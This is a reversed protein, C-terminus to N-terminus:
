ARSSVGRGGACPRHRPPRDPADASAHDRKGEFRIEGGHARPNGCITMLLTSKGAGNAGILSVIGGKPVEVTVGRLAHINGYSAHVAEVALM